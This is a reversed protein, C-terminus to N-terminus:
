SGGQEDAFKYHAEELPPAMVCMCLCVCNPVMAPPSRMLFMPCNTDPIRVKVPTYQDAQRHELTPLRRTQVERRAKGKKKTATGRRLLLQLFQPTWEGKEKNKGHTCSASPMRMGRQIDFNAIVVVTKDMSTCSEMKMKKPHSSRPLVPQATMSQTPAKKKKPATSAGPHVLDLSLSSTDMPLIHVKATNRAPGM